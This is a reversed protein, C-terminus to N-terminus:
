VTAVPTVPSAVAGPLNLPPATLFFRHRGNSRLWNALPSLHWLEGLPVGIKFLCHEHLPLAACCDAGARAPYAEVAYNDAAIAAVKSDSIWQLLREDRGDLVACSSALKESDPQRQMSLVVEAFGTHLCLIDGPIVKVQDAELVQQLKEYNILTRSEGYHAHLDVMVGAGQIGKEAFKEIGLARAGCTSEQPGVGIPLDTDELSKPGLIDVGAAFGNYYVAEPIGDRNVDFLSGAHSFGDWQTSYQLHLIALDDSLVDTKGPELEGLLCNFNVLGKRRLPRLVPPKRNPNLATGGPYDLPLSLSFSIGERIEAAAERVRDPTLLNLRGLQDDEGFDGWNSGPPRDLWRKM